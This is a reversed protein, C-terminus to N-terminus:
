KYGYKAEHFDGTDIWRQIVRDLVEDTVREYGWSKANGEVSQIVQGKVFDPIREVRDKTENDWPLTEGEREMIADSVEGWMEYKTKMIEPTIVRGLDKKVATWEVRWKTLERCFDPVGDLEALAEPTWEFEHEVTKGSLPHGYGLQTGLKQMFATGIETMRKERARTEALNTSLDNARSETFKGVEAMQAAAEKVKKKADADWTVGMAKVPCAAESDAQAPDMTFGTEANHVPCKSEGQETAEDVTETAIETTAEADTAEGYSSLMEAMIRRGEAIGQECLDLNIQTQEHKRTFQEVKDRTMNRMFGAPVRNMRKWAADTWTFDSDERVKYHEDNPREDEKVEVHVAEGRPTLYATDAMDQEVMDIAFEATITNLGRVRANKEIRAKSRRRDYGSPVRRLISKAESSWKLKKGDFTEEEELHGSDLAGINQLVERDIMEFRDGEVKCVICLAPRIDRVAHGCDPCVFTKGEEMRDKDIAVEEAIYGMAQAAGAPLLDGMATNIVSATVISHGREKAWRLIANTAVGKVFSPVREMKQLAEDSWEINAKAEVDVPPIYKQSSILLDCPVTRLLNETTAGIDMDQESHVGIRGIVMLWPKVLSSHRLIKSFAKGDLLTIKLKVDKEKAVERAIELHAQYIKALGTDIIEEHLKEQDKFKFVSSAEESLVNVIGNFLTYHLYPDYVAVAEVRKNLQRGLEIATMLGGFAQQSGDICVLILDSEETTPADTTKVVLTDVGVRRLIRECTASVEVDQPEDNRTSGLVVLDYDSEIIDESLAKFVRGSVVKSQFPVDTPAADGNTPLEIEPSNPLLAMLRDMRAQEISKTNVQVGTLDSGLADALRKALIAAKRSRNSQDIPVCITQYM